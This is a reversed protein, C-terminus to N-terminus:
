KSNETSKKKKKLKLENCRQCQKRNTKSSVAVDHGAFSSMRTGILNAPKIAAVTVPCEHLM